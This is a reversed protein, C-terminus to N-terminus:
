LLLALYLTPLSYSDVLYAVDTVNPWASSKAAQTLRTEIEPLIEVFGPTFPIDSSELAGFHERWWLADISRCLSDKYSDHGLGAFSAPITTPVTLTYQPGM